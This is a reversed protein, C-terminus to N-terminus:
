SADSPCLALNNYNPSPWFAPLTYALFPNSPQLINARFCIEIGPSIILLRDSGDSPSHQHQDAAPGRMVYSGDRLLWTRGVAQSLDHSITSVEDSFSSTLFIQVHSTSLVTSAWFLRPM